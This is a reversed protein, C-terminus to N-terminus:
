SVKFFFIAQALDSDPLLKRGPLLQSQRSSVVIKVENSLESSSSRLQSRSPSNSLLAIPFFLGEELSLTNLNSIGLLGFVLASAWCLEM